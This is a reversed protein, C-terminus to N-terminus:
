RQRKDLIVIKELVGAPDEAQTIPRGIVLYDSGEAFAAEPTLCRKQDDIKSDAFRIGPTVLCFDTGFTKRLLASEQSSCVVGDLGANFALTALSLVEEQIKRQFGLVALDEETLSTLLTVGILLPRNLNVKDIAERASELMAIGGLTHVNLMWVGLKAAALCAKAVTNPIDHFKLDLFIDFNLKMLNELLSPGYATFSEKGVKLRCKKPNLQKALSIASTLDLNDLAVIIHPPSFQSM